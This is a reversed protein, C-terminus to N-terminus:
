AVYVIDVDGGRAEVAVVAEYAADTAIPALHWNSVPAFRCRILRPNEDITVDFDELPLSLGRGLAKVFAEKRTWCRYFGREWDPGALAALSAQEASSFFREVLDREIPALAEIDVGIRATSSVAILAKDQSHSVNFHLPLGALEPRGHPGELIRLERADEGLEDALIRRLAARAFIFRDRSRELVYRDARQREQSSLM